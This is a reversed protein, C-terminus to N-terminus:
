DALTFPVGSQAAKALADSLGALAAHYRGTRVDHERLCLRALVSQGCLQAMADLVQEGGSGGMTCFLGIRSLRARQQLIYARMPSSMHGAWVPTGLVVFPYDAPDHRPTEILAPRERLAEWASRLYGAVGDRAHVDRIAELDGGCAQALASAVEAGVGTRSYYAILCPGM